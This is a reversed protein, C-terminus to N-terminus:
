RHATCGPLARCFEQCIEVDTGAYLMDFTEGNIETTYSAACPQMAGGGQGDAMASRQQAQTVCALFTQPNLLLDRNAVAVVGAVIPLADKSYGSAAVAGIDQYCNAVNDVVAIVATAQFQGLLATGTEGLGAIFDQISQADLRSYGAPNPLFSSAPPANSAPTALPDLGPVVGCGTVVVMLLLALVALRSLMTKMLM